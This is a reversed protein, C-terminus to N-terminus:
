HEHVVNGNVCLLEDVFRVFLMQFPMLFSDM